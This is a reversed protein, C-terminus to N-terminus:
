SMYCQITQAWYELIKQGIPVFNRGILIVANTNSFMVVYIRIRFDPDAWNGSGGGLNDMIIIVIIILIIITTTIIKIILIIIMIIIVIMIIIM